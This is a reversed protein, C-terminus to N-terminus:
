EIILPYLEFFKEMIKDFLDQRLYKEMYIKGNNAIEECKDLNNLCWEFKEVLDGGDNNVPVFHVYPELGSAFLYTEFSFPYNHLPCCNSMLAWPFSSSFDNGEINLIFKNKTQDKINVSSKYYVNYKDRTSENLQCLNNFGIDINNNINFNKSIINYRVNNYFEGSGTTSGRWFLINNKLKFDDNDLNLNNLITPSQYDILPFIVQNINNITRNFTLKFENYSMKDNWNSRIIYKKNDEKKWYQKLVQIFMNHRHHSDGVNVNNNCDDLLVYDNNKSYIIYKNESIDNYYIGYMFKIQQDIFEDDNIETEM